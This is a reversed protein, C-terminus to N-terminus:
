KELYDVGGKGIKERFLCTLFNQLACMRYVFHTHLRSCGGCVCLYRILKLGAGGLGGGGGPGYYYSECRGVPLEIIDSAPFADSVQSSSQAMSIIPLLLLMLLPIM